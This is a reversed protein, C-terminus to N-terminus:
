SFDTRPFGGGYDEGAAMPIVVWGNRHFCEKLQDGSVDSVEHQWVRRSGNM